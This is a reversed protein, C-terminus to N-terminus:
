VIFYCFYLLQHLHDFYGTVQMPCQSSKFVSSFASQEEGKHKPITCIFSETYMYLYVCLKLYLESYILM